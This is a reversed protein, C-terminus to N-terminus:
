LGLLGNALQHGQCMFQMNKVNSLTSPTTAMLLSFGSKLRPAVELQDGKTMGVALSSM